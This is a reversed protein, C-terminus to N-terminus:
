LLSSNPVSRRRPRQFREMTADNIAGTWCKIVKTFWRVGRSCFPGVSHSIYDLVAHWWQMNSANDDRQLFVRVAHPHQILVVAPFVVLQLGVCLFALAPYDTAIRHVLTESVSSMQPLALGTKGWLTYCSCRNFVGVQTAIVGGMTAATITVNKVFTFWFQWRHHDGWHIYDLAASLLWVEYILFEGINRCSFGTPPVLYSILLGALTATTVVILPLVPSGVRLRMIAVFVKEQGETNDSCPDMVNEGRRGVRPQWIRPQWSYIGGSGERQATDPGSDVDDPTLHENPLSGTLLPFATTIDTQLQQLNQPIANETQSVGIVSALFVAPIVWFYLATFAISHTEVNIFTTPNPGEAAAETRGFAIAVTGIFFGQAVLVPFFSTTRDRALANGTKQCIELLKVKDSNVIESSTRYPAPM